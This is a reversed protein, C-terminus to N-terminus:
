TSTVRDKWEEGTIGERFYSHAAVFGAPPGHRWSRDGLNVACAFGYGGTVAPALGNEPMAVGRFAVGDPGSWVGNLAFSLDGRALDAACGIVDGDRWKRATRYPTDGGAWKKLRIGDVGWSVQDDGVGDGSEADCRVVTGIWGLQVVGVCREITVEFFVRANRPARAREACLTNFGVFRCRHNAEDVTSQTSRGRVRELPCRELRVQRRARKREVAAWRDSSYATLNADTSLVSKLDAATCIEGPFLATTTAGAALLIRACACHGGTVAHALPTVGCCDEASVSGAASLLLRLVAANGHQAALHVATRGDLASSNTSTGARLLHHAVRAARGRADSAHRAAGAEAAIMLATRGLDDRMEVCGPQRRVLVKTVEANAGYAANMLPTCGDEADARSADAGHDLLLSVVAAHGCLSAVGLATDGNRDKAEVDVGRELLLAACEARGQSAACLLATYGGGDKRQPDAGRELLLSAVERSGHCCAAMLASWGDGLCGDVDAGHDLLLRAVEVHGYNCAALM